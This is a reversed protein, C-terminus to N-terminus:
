VFPGIPVHVAKMAGENGTITYFKGATVLGGIQAPTWDYCQLAGQFEQLLTCKLKHFVGFQRERGTIDMVLCDPNNHIVLFLADLWEKFERAAQAATCGPTPPGPAPYRGM